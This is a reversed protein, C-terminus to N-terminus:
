YPWQNKLKTCLLHEKSAQGEPPSGHLVFHEAKLWKHVPIHHVLGAAHVPAQAKGEAKLYCIGCIGDSSSLMQSLWKLIVTRTM